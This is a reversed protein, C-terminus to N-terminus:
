RVPRLAAALAPVGLRPLDKEVVLPPDEGEDQGENMGLDEMEKIAEAM